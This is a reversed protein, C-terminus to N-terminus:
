GGAAGHSPTTSVSPLSGAQLRFRASCASRNVRRGSADRYRIRWVVGRPGEYRWVRGWKPEGRGNMAMAGSMGLEEQALFGTTRRSQQDALWREIDDPPLPPLPRPSPPPSARRPDGGAGLSEKVALLEAVESRHASPREDLSRRARAKPRTEGSSGAPHAAKGRAFLEVKSARPYMREILEHVCPPSRQTAAARPRSSPTPFIRPSRRASARRQARAPPARPPKAGLARARDLAEGLRPEDHLHLGLGADGRAGASALCNVAWLFLVANEAAPVALAKIEALPLTPYHKEPAYPGDPNGIQWPPDAYIVEFPGAPLPPPPPLQADRQSGGSAGRPRRRRRANGAKVQEFLERDQEYVTIVDQATRPSAGAIAAILERTKAGLHCRQWRPTNACTRASDLGHEIAFSRTTRSSSRSRPESRPTSSGDGSRRSCCSRSRTTPVVVRVEIQEWGLDKAARLRARGDLVVDVETVDLPVQLGRAELDLCFTRYESEPMEPVLAADPHLRLELLAM